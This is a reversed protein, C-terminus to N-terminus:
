WDDDLEAAVESPIKQMRFNGGYPSLRESVKNRHSVVLVGSTEDESLQQHLRRLRLILLDVWHEARGVEPEDVILLRFHPPRESVADKRSALESVANKRSAFAFESLKLQLVVESRMGFSLHEPLVTDGDEGTPNFNLMMHGGGGSFGLETSVGWPNHNEFEPPNLCRNIEERVLLTSEKLPETLSWSFEFIKKNADEDLYPCFADFDEVAILAEFCSSLYAFNSPKFEERYENLEEVAEQYASSTQEMLINQLFQLRRQREPTSYFPDNSSDRLEKRIRHSHMERLYNHSILSTLSRTSTIYQPDPDFHLPWDECMDDYEGEDEDADGLFGWQSKEDDWSSRQEENAERLADKLLYLDESDYTKADRNLFGLANLQRSKEDLAEKVWTPRSEFESFNRDRREICNHLFKEILYANWRSPQHYQSWPINNLHDHHMLMSELMVQLPHARIQQAKCFQVVDNLLTKVIRRRSAHNHSSHTFLIERTAQLVEFVPQFGNMEEIRLNFKNSSLLDELWTEMRKEDVLNSHMIMPNTYLALFDQIYELQLLLVPKNETTRSPLEWNNLHEPAHHDQRTPAFWLFAASSEGDKTEQGRNFNNVMEKFTKAESMRPTEHYEVQLRFFFMLARQALWKMGGDESEPGAHLDIEQWNLAPQYAWGSDETWEDDFGDQEDDHEHESHEDVRIFIRAFDRIKSNPSLFSQSSSTVTKENLVVVMSHDVGNEAFRMGLAHYPVIPSPMATLANSEKVYEQHFLKVLELLGGEFGYWMEASSRLASKSIADLHNFIYTKGYGNPAWAAFLKKRLPIRLSRLPVHEVSLLESLVEPAEITYGHIRARLDLDVYEDSGPVAFQDPYWDDGEPVATSARTLIGYFDIQHLEIEQRM